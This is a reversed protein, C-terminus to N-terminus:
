FFNSITVHCFVIFLSIVVIFFSCVINKEYSVQEFDTFHSSFKKVQEFDAFHSSFNKVQEFDAFHSSFSKM